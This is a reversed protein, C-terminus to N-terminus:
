DLNVVDMWGNSGNFTAAARVGLTDTIPGGVAGEVAYEGFMGYLARVQGDLHDGPKKSVINLAGAIANDGFFTTQPGKLIEIRDLDLFTANSMRARGHYIDDSLMAVSQDFGPNGGSAIGRISLTNSRADSVVSVGPVTRTLDEFNTQNQEVLTQGDIVQVSIP